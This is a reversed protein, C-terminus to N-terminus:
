FILSQVVIYWARLDQKLVYLSKNLIYVKNENGSKVFGHLQDVFVEEELDGQLVASKVDLQFISWSNCAALTTM